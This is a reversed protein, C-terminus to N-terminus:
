GIAGEFVHIVVRFDREKFNESIVVNYVGDKVSLMRIYFSTYHLFELQYLEEISKNEYSQAAFAQRWGSFVADLANLMDSFIIDDLMLLHTPITRFDVVSLAFVRTDVVLAM